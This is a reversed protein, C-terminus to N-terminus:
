IVPEGPRVLGKAPEDVLKVQPFSAVIERTKDTSANNVVIIELDYNKGEIEHFISNLCDGIFEAENYAPIVVSLKM